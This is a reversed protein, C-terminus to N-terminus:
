YVNLVNTIYSKVEELPVQPKHNRFWKGFVGPILGRYCLSLKSDYLFKDLIKKYLVSDQFNVVGIYEKFDKDGNSTNNNADGDATQGIIIMVQCGMWEALEAIGARFQRMSYLEKIGIPIYAMYVSRDRGVSVIGASYKYLLQLADLKSYDEYAISLEQFLTAGYSEDPVGLYGELESLM